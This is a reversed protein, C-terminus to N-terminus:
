HGPPALFQDTTSGPLFELSSLSLHECPGPFMNELNPPNDVISNNNNDLRERSKSNCHEPANQLMNIVSNTDSILIGWLINRAADEVNVVINPSVDM